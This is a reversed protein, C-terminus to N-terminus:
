ETNNEVFEQLKEGPDDAKMLSEGILFAHVGAAKLKVIHDKNSIGSESVVVVNHPIHKMLNITTSIDTDFTNLDRNNIGIISAGAQLATELERETHVEVVTCLSLEDCLQLLNKITEKTLIAAILLLADAGCAKSQYIHYPDFLFDKRFVPLSINKKIDSLYNLNGMFYKEETLVSVAAAGNLEYSQAIKVPEFHERIVGKSPSAKKVEAIIRNNREKGKTLASHFDRPEPVGSLSAQITKLPVKKSIEDLERKKSDFIKQLIM